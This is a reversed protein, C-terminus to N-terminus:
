LVEERLKVKLGTDKDLLDRGAIRFRYNKDPEKMAERLAAAFVCHLGCNYAEYRQVETQKAEMVEPDEAIEEDGYVSLDYEGDVLQELALENCYIGYDSFAHSALRDARSAIDPTFGNPLNRYREGNIFPDYVLVRWTGDPTREPAKLILNWHNADTLHLFSAPVQWRQALQTIETENLYCNERYESSSRGTYIPDEVDYGMRNRVNHAFIQAAHINEEASVESRIIRDEPIVPQPNLVISDYIATDVQESEIESGVKIQAHLDDGSTQTIEEGIKIKSEIQKRRLGDLLGGAEVHSVEEQPTAIDVTGEWNTM